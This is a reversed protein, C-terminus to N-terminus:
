IYQLIYNILDHKELYDNFPTFVKDGVTVEKTAYNATVTITDMDWYLLDIATGYRIANTILTNAEDTALFLRDRMLLREDGFM